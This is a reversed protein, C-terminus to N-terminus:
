TRPFIDNKIATAIPIGVENLKRCLSLVNKGEGYLKISEKENPFTGLGPSYKYHLGAGYAILIIETDNQYGHKQESSELIIEIGGLQNIAKKFREVGIRDGGERTSYDTIQVKM